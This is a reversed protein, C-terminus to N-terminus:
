EEEDEELQKVRKTYLGLCLCLVIYTIAATLLFVFAGSAVAGLLARYEIYKVICLFVGAVAGAFISIMLNVKPSPSLKRDWIGNKICAGVVYVSLLMFVVWEGAMSRWTDGLVFQQIFMVALLGWFALWFGNREIELLKIEQREDLQNKLKKM